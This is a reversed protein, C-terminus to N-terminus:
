GEDEQVLSLIRGAWETLGLIPKNRKAPRRAIWGEKITSYTELMRSWGGGVTRRSSGDLM